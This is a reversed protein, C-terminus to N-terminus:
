EVDLSQCLKALAIELKDEDEYTGAAIERRVREVLDHRIGDVPKQLSPEVASFEDTHQRWWSSSKSVPGALCSPGHLNM